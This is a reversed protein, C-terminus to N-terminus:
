PLFMFEIIFEKWGSSFSAPPNKPYTIQKMALDNYYSQEASNQTAQVQQRKKKGTQMLSKGEIM